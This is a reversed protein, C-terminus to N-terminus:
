NSCWSHTKNFRGDSIELDQVKGTKGAVNRKILLVKLKNKYHIARM